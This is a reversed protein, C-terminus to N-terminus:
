SVPQYVQGDACSPAYLHLTVASGVPRVRHIAVPDIPDIDGPLRVSTWAPTSRVEFDSAREFREEFVTGSLVTTVTVVGGHDHIPTIQGPLWSLLWVELGPATHVLERHYEDGPVFRAQRVFSDGHDRVLDRLVKTLDLRVLDIRNDVRPQCDVGSIV